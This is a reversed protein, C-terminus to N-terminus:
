TPEWGRADVFDYSGNQTAEFRSGGKRGAGENRKAWEMPSCFSKDYVWDCSILIMTPAGDCVGLRFDGQEWVLDATNLLVDRYIRLAEERSTNEKLVRCAAPRSGNGSMITYREGELQLNIRMETRSHISSQGYATMILKDM